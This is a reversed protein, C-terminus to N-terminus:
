IQCNLNKSDQSKIKWTDHRIGRVTDPVGPSWLSSMGKKTAREHDFETIQRYYLMYKNVQGLVHIDAIFIWFDPTAKLEAMPQNIATAYSDSLGSNSHQSKQKVATHCQITVSISHAETEEGTLHHEYTTVTVISYTQCMTPRCFEDTSHIILTLHKAGHRDTLNGTSCVKFCLCPKNSAAGLILVHPPSPLSASSLLFLLQAIIFAWHLGWGVGRFNQLQPSGESTTFTASLM